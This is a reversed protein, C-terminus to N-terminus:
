KPFVTVVDYGEPPTMRERAHKECYMKDEVFFHGKQKLNMGCDTCVYCEPHRPKDRIKVFVGVIGSGCHDCIPLKQGSGVSAAVKTTPARVSRFGSPKEGKEDSELIDQLVLFSTSQRPPENSEQNEQLMKYVESDKDVPRAQPPQPREVDKNPVQTGNTSKSELTNNFTQINESSYLGAPNNYQATIVRPTNSASGATFPMASRNHTSGIQKVEELSSNITLTLDDECAKIKNQAELHTMGDTNEGDIAIVVDGTCLEALAAKSGPSVRRQLEVNKFGEPHNSTPILNPAVMFKLCVHKPNM